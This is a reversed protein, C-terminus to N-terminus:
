LHQSEDPEIHIYIIMDNGFNQKLVHEVDTAVAHGERITINPDVHINVDIITSHGVRRGRLNHVRKVGPVSKIIAHIRDIETLPLSVELLESISPKAIQIASIGIFVAIIISAIPDLIRWNEGLAFALSVGILTAISSIADTRHHWANARLASSGINKAYRITYQYCYEKSLISVCAIVITWVDPRPIQIGNIANYITVIGGWGIGLAVIMLVIAIFFSAVTEYKGHGYPHDKDARKYSIGVFYLVMFDTIFDSFSHYGDAVLADSHGWYGFFLKLVVLAANIWFGVMTVHRITRLENESSLNPM